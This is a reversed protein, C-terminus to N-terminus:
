YQVTDMAMRVADAATLPHDGPDIGCERMLREGLERAAASYRLCDADGLEPEPGGGSILQGAVALKVARQAQRKNM